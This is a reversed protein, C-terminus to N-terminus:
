PVQHGLRYGIQYYWPRLIHFGYLMVEVFQIDPLQQIPVEAIIGHIEFRGRQLVKRDGLDPPSVTVRHASEDYSQAFQVDLIDLIPFDAYQEGVSTHPIPAIPTGYVETEHMRVLDQFLSRFGRYVTELHHVMSLDDSEQYRIIFERPLM